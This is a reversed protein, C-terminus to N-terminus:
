AGFMLKTGTYSRIVKKPVEAKLIEYFPEGTCHMPVIDDVDLDVLEKITQRVYDENHPALHFGKLVADKGGDSAEGYEAGRPARLLPFFSGPLPSNHWGVGGIKKPCNLAPRQHECQFGKDRKNDSPAKQSYRCDHCCASLAELAQIHIEHGSSDEDPQDNDSCNRHRRSRVHPAAASSRILVLARRYTESNSLHGADGAGDIIGRRQEITRGM